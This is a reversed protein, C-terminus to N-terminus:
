RDQGDASHAYNRRLLWRQGKSICVLHWAIRWHKCEAIATRPKPVQFIQASLLFNQSVPFGTGWLLVVDRSFRSHAAANPM